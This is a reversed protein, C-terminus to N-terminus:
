RQLRLYYIYDIDDTFENNRRVMKKSVPIVRYMKGRFLVLDDKKLDSIDDETKIATNNEDFMMFGGLMGTSNIEDEAQKANFKGAVEEKNYKVENSNKLYETYVSTSELVKKKFFLCEDNYGRNSSFLSRRGM